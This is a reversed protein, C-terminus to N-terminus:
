RRVRVYNRPTKPAHALRDALVDWTVMIRQRGRPPTWSISGRGVQLTGLLKGKELVRFEFATGINKPLFMGNWWVKFQSTM